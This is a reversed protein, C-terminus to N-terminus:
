IHLRSAIFDLADCWGENYQSYTEANGYVKYPHLAEAEEIICAVCGETRTCNKKCEKEIDYCCLRM